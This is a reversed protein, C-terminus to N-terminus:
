KIEVVREFPESKYETHTEPNTAVVRLRYKGPPYHPYFWDELHEEVGEWYKVLNRIGIDGRAIYGPQTISELEVDFWIISAELNAFGWHLYGGGIDMQFDLPKDRYLSVDSYERNKDNSKEFMMIFPQQPTKTVAFRYNQFTRAGDYYSAMKGNTFVQLTYYGPKVNRGPDLTLSQGFVDYGTIKTQCKKGDVDTLVIALDSSEYLNFGAIRVPAGNISRESLYGSWSLRIPGKRLVLPKSAVAIRGNQKHFSVTYPSVVLSTSFAKQFPTLSSLVMQWWFHYNKHM